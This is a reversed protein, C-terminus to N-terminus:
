TKRKKKEQKGHKLSSPFLFCGSSFRRARTHELHEVHQFFCRIHSVLLSLSFFFLYAIFSVCRFILTTSMSTFFFFFVCM